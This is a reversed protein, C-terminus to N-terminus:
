RRLRWPRAHAATSSRAQRTPARQRAAGPRASWGAACLARTLQESLEGVDVALQRRQESAHQYACFARHIQGHIQQLAELMQTNADPAGNRIPTVIPSTRIATAATGDDILGFADPALESCLRENAGHLRRHADNLRQVIAQDHEFLTSLQAALQRAHPPVPRDSTARTPTAAPRTTASMAQDAARRRRRAAAAPPPRPPPAHPLQRRRDSPRHRPPAAPRPDRHRRDHRRLDRGVPRHRPQHHPHRATNTAAASSRSSTAPPRAPCRCTASSTSSSSRPGTGSACRRRGAARSRRAPPAAVLDAATTYYVRHGAHVANRGLAIALMTKGVGPPGILLVNAHEEVFRLTALEDVLRRDLSPQADFDFQELTKHTPFSAFRLRGDLRRQETAEVEVALLDNSSGPTHRSTPRPPKCRPPSSSPSRGTAQPLRPARAVAPLRPRDDRTKEKPKPTTTRDAHEAAALLEFGLERTQEPSSRSRSRAAVGTGPADLLVLTM